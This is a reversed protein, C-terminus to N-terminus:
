RSLFDQHPALAEQIPRFSQFGDLLQKEREIIYSQADPAIAGWLSHKDSKWSKPVDYTKAPQAVPPDEAQVERIPAQSPERRLPASERKGILDEGLLNGVQESATEIDIAPSSTDGTIEDM